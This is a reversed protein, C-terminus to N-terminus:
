RYLHLRTIGSPLMKMLMASATMHPSLYSFSFQFFSESLILEAKGAPICNTPGFFEMVQADAPHQWLEQPTGQQVIHGHRMLVLHDSCALAEQPDHSVLLTTIQLSRLLDLTEDRLQERLGTDLGSFPEDLCVVAPERALTRALAIRQQQGGSCQHPHRQALDSLGCRALWHMARERQEAKALHRLGFMVNREITLHPFLAYDQFVMGVPRHEPPVWHKEGSLCQDGLQISGAFPQEHGAICRLLTSKGCGSSGLITTISSASYIYRFIRLHLRTAMPM